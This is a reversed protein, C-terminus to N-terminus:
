LDTKLVGILKFLSIDESINSVQMQVYRYIDSVFLMLHSTNSYLYQKGIGVKRAKLIFFGAVVLVSIM